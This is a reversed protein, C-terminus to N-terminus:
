TAVVLVKYVFSVAEDRARKIDKVTADRLNKIDKM